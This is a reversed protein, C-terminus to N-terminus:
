QDIDFKSQVGSEAARSVTAAAARHRGAKARRHFGGVGPAGLGASVFRMHRLFERRNLFATEPTALREAIHWDPRIIVNAM